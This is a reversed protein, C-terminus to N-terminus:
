HRSLERHLWMRAVSWHRKVTSRSVQLLEAIEELDMGGFYRLEVIRCREPDLEAFRTLAEDVAIMGAGDAAPHDLADDVNVHMAGAGRKAALRQRAEDTMLRRMMKVAIGFFQQRDRWQARDQAILKLYLEHVLATRPMAPARGEGRVVHQALGRLEDYVIPMLAELAASDGSSWRHLLETIDVGPEDSSM